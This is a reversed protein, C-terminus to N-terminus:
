VSNQYDQQSRIKEFNESTKESEDNKRVLRLDLFDSWFSLLFLRFHLLWKWNSKTRMGMARMPECVGFPHWVSASGNFLM